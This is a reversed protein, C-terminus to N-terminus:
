VMWTGSSWAYSTAPPLFGRMSASASTFSFFGRFQGPSKDFPDSYEKYKCRAPLLCVMTALSYLVLCGGARFHFHGSARVRTVSPRKRKVGYGVDWNRGRVEIHFVNEARKGSFTKKEFHPPAFHSLPISRIILATLEDWKVGSRQLPTRPCTLFALKWFALCLFVGWKPM